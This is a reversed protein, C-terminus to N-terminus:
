ILVSFQTYSKGLIFPDNSLYMSRAMLDIYTATILARDRVVKLPAAAQNPGRAAIQSPRTYAYAHFFAHYM